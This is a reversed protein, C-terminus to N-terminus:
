KGKMTKHPLFKTKPAKQAPARMKTMGTGKAHLKDANVVANSLRTIDKSVHPAYVQRMHDQKIDTAQFLESDKPPRKDIVNKSKRQSNLATKM